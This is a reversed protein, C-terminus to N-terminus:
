SPGVQNSLWDPYAQTQPDFGLKLANNWDSVDPQGAPSCCCVVLYIHLVRVVGTVLWVQEQRLQQETASPLLDIPAGSVVAKSGQKQHTDDGAATTHVRLEAGSRTVECTAHLVICAGHLLYALWDAQHMLRPTAGAAAAGQWTQALHWALVKCLTSTAASATHSAPAIAQLCRPPPTCLCLPPPPEM